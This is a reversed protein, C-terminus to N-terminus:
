GTKSTKPPAKAYGEDEELATAIRKKFSKTISDVLEEIQQETLEFTGFKRGCDFCHKKRYVLYPFVRRAANKEGVRRTTLTEVKVHDCKM